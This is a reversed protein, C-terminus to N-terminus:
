RHTTHLYNPCNPDTCSCITVGAQPNDGQDQGSDVDGTGSGLFPTWGCVCKGSDANVIHVHNEDAGQGSDETGGGAVYPGGSRNLRQLVRAVVDAAADSVADRGDDFGQRYAVQTAEDFEGQTYTRPEKKVPDTM